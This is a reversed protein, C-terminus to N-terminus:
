SSQSGEPWFASEELETRSRNSYPRSIINRGPDSDSMCMDTLHDCGMESKGSYRIACEDKYFM